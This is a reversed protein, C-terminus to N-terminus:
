VSSVRRVNVPVHWCVEFERATPHSALARSLLSLFSFLSFSSSSSVIPRTHLLSFRRLRECRRRGSDKSRGSIGAGPTSNGLTVKGVTVRGSTRQSESLKVIVSAGGGLRCDSGDRGDSSGIWRAGLVRRPHPSMSSSSSSSADVSTMGPVEGGRRLRRHVDDVKLGGGFIGLPLACVYVYLYLANKVCPSCSGPHLPCLVAWWRQSM